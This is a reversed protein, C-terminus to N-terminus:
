SNVYVRPVRTNICALVEHPSCGIVNVLDNVTIKEGGQEGMIVVEDGNYATGDPGIDVMLQDMCIKGIIPHKVGRIIVHGRNSLEWPLGDGYGIPVTVVRTDYPAVWTHGYSVGAGKKVVKFYVVRSKISMARILNIPPKSHSNPTVGYLAIGVRALDLHNDRSAFIGASNAIHRLPRISAGDFFKCVDLFRSLQLRTTEQDSRDACAFHSYIGVIEVHKSKLATELFEGCSYYHTGTREMGTDIELHIRAKKLLTRACEEVAQLKSISAVSPELNYDLFLKIQSNLLGGLVIIPARIGARRLIVGEEILAVALYEAGAEELAKAVPVLGHGYANSKIVCALKTKGLYDRIIRFNSRIAALNLEIRTPRLFEDPILQYSM